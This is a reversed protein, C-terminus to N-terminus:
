KVLESIKKQIDVELDLLTNKMLKSSYTIGNDYSIYYQYNTNTVNIVKKTINNNRYEKILQGPLLTVEKHKMNNISTM